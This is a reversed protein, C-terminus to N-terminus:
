AGYGDFAVSVQYGDEQLAHAMIKALPREDDVVLILKGEKILEQPVPFAPILIEL